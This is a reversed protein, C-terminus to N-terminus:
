HYTEVQARRWAHYKRNLQFALAMGGLSNTPSPFPLAMCAQEKSEVHELRECESMGRLLLSSSAM